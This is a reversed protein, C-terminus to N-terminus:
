QEFPSGPVPGFFGQLALPTLAITIALAARGKAGVKDLYGKSLLLQWDPSELGIQILQQAYPENGKLYRKDGELIALAERYAIWQGGQFHGGQTKNLAALELSALQSANYLQIKLPGDAKAFLPGYYIEGIHRDVVPNQEGGLAGYYDKRKVSGPSLVSRLDAYPDVSFRRYMEAMERAQSEMAGGLAGGTGGGRELAPLGGEEFVRRARYGLMTQDRPTKAQSLVANWARMLNSERGFQAEFAEPSGLYWSPRKAGLEYYRQAREINPLPFKVRPGGPYKARIQEAMKALAAPSLGAPRRPIPAQPSLAHALAAQLEPTPPRGARFDDALSKLQEGTLPLKIQPRGTRPAGVGGRYGLIDGAIGGLGVLSGHLREALTQSEVEAQPRVPPETYAPIQALEGRREPHSGYVRLRQWLPENAETPPVATPMQPISPLMQLFTDWLGGGLIEGLSQLAPPQDVQLQARLQAKRYADVYTRSTGEPALAFVEPAQPEEVGPPPGILAPDYPLPEPPTYTLTMGLDRRPTPGQLLQDLTVAM